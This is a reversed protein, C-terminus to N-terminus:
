EAAGNVVDRCQDHLPYLASALRGIHRRLAEDRIAGEALDLRLVTAFLRLRRQILALDAVRADLRADAELLARLAEAGQHARHDTM